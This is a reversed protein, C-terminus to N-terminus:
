ARREAAARSLRDAVRLLADRLEPPELVESMRDLRFTRWDTRDLDWALLYWRLGTAVLRYPETRRKTDAGSRFTIADVVYGASRITGTTCTM